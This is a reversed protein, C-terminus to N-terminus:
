PGPEGPQPQLVHHAAGGAAPGSYGAPHLVARLLAHLDRAMASQFVGEMKYKVAPIGQKQFEELFPVALRHKEVIVAFHEYTFAIENWADGDPVNIKRNRGILGKVALATWAAMRSIRGPANGELVMVQVPRGLVPDLPKEPSRPHAKATEGGDGSSPYSIRGTDGSAEDFAFWDPSDGNKAFVANYGDITESLSRYNETLTYIKGDNALITNKADLYSRVDAGQFAYISQKPDGVIFIRPGDKRSPELFIKKFIQWQLGSTDQFEDIIGYRLRERLQSCFNSKGTVAKHMLRLMDQFSILGKGRKTRIWSDRLLEAADCILALLLNKEITELSAICPHAQLEQFLADLSGGPGTKKFAADCLPALRLKGNKDPKKFKSLSAVAACDIQMKGDPIQKTWYQIAPIATRANEHFAAPPTFGDLFEKLKKVSRIFAPLAAEHEKEFLAKLDTLRLNGCARRDLITNETDLLKLATERVLGFHKEELPTGQSQLRELAWPILTEDKQWDTRMSERLADILGESDDVMETSFPVGTEFPRTQLLRLCVGHITGILAEHLNNLCNELHPKLEGDNEGTNKIREELGKRIRKKLEGAAKETFTVLLIENVPVFSMEGKAGTIKKELIRLVMQIITWTKGTGAHAEIVGHRDLDIEPANRKKSM